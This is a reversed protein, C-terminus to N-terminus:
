CSALVVFFGSHHNKWSVSRPLWTRTSSPWRRCLPSTPRCLFRQQPNSDEKLIVQKKSSGIQAQPAQKAGAPYKKSECRKRYLHVEKFFRFFFSFLGAPNSGEVEHDRLLQRVAESWVLYAIRLIKMIAKVVTRQPCMRCFVIEGLHM